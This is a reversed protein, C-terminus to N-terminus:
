ILDQALNRIISMAGLDFGCMSLLGRDETDAIAHGISTLGCMVM